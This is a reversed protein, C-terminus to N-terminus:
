DNRFQASIFAKIISTLNEYYTVYAKAEAIKQDYPAMAAKAGASAENYSQVEDSDWRLSRFERYRSEERVRTMKAVDLRIQLLENELEMQLRAVEIPSPVTSHCINHVRSALTQARDEPSVKKQVM